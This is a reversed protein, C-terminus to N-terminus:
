AALAPLSGRLLALGSDRDEARLIATRQAKDLEFHALWGALHKRFVKLGLRPGYHADVERAHREIWPALATLTPAAPQPRGDLYARLEAFIWPRGVAARGIMLADAGSRELAREASPGDVIDGNAIVPLTIAQKVARITAYEAEGKYMDARTRGHVAIADLGCREALEAIEVANRAQRHLGTRIKVSLPVTCAERTAEFIARVLGPDGMLASGCAKKRVKKAPCGMNIDIVDAGLQQHRQAAQALVEPEAGALQVIWPRPEDRQHLRREFKARRADDADAATMEGYCFDAGFDRCLRRMPADTVGAMPALILPLTRGYLAPM